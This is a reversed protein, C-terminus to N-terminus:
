VPGAPAAGQGLCDFLAAIILEQSTNNPSMASRVFAGSVHAVPDAFAVQGGAGGNGVTELNPGLSKKRNGDYGGVTRRVTAMRRILQRLVPINTIDGMVEDIYTQGPALFTKMSEASFYRRGDLEGGNALVAYLRALDKASTVGNSAPVEAEQWRGDAMLEDIADMISRSGDGLFAQGPWTNPDRLKDPVKALIPRLLAPGELLDTNAISKAIDGQDARAVGIATRIGLPGAIEDHFFAGLTRGTVRRVIEGVLWGFTIAHYGCKTGPEWAPKAAALRAAIADLDDWGSGDWKVLSPVDPVGIVGATHDLIHRLTIGSKGNAAFEPWIDAIRTDFALAGRDFLIQVCMVAWGKTVSAVGTRTDSTWAVGPSQEGAVLDVIPEGHLTAAFALGGKDHLAARERFVEEVREFGQAIM